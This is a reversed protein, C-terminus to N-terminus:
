IEPLGARLKNRKQMGCSKKIKKRFNRTDPFWQGIGIQLAGSVM